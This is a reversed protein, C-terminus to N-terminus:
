KAALTSEIAAEALPEMIAYGQATPHVGDSSLGPKMGGDADAMASYYDVYTVHHQACFASLWANLQQVKPAPQLGKRWPFDAAPLVSTMIVHIGAAQSRLIMSSLNAEIDEMSIPGQNQAIDNIGALIVVAAPHLDIVDQQLRMVMQSTTQGSIGRNVYAKGPFFGSRKPWGETISDGYFVVRGPADAPLKANADRFRDLQAWRDPDKSRNSPDTPPLPKAAQPTQSAAPAQSPTPNQAVLLCSGAGLLVLAFLSRRRLLM